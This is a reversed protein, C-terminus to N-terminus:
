PFLLSQVQAPQPACSQHGVRATLSRCHLTCLAAALSPLVLSLQAQAESLSRSPAALELSKQQMVSLEEAGASSSRCGPPSRPSLCHGVRLPLKPAKRKAKALRQRSLGQSTGHRPCGPSVAATPLPKPVGEAESALLGLM